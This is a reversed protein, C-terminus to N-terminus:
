GKLVTSESYISYFVQKWFYKETIHMQGIQETQVNDSISEM